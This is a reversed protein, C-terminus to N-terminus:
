AAVAGAPRCLAYRMAMALGDRALSHYPQTGTAVFGLKRLVRGSAPNDAFHGAQVRRLGLAHHAHDLMATAAETAYGRGWADPTLWYGLEADGAADWLAVGGVLRPAACAREHAFVLCTPRMSEQPLSLFAEADALAYPWPIRSTMRAVDRHAIATALAPADEPWGPRLTLRSTRAFM